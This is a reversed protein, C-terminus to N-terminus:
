SILHCCCEIFLYIFLLTLLIHPLSDRPNLSIDFQARKEQLRQKRERLERQATYCACQLLSLATQQYEATTRHIYVLDQNNQDKRKDLRKRFSYGSLITVHFQPYSVLFIVCCCCESHRLVAQWKLFESSFHCLLLIKWWEITLRYQQYTHKIV